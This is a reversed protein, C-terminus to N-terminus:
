GFEWKVNMFHENNQWGALLEEAADQSLDEYFKVLRTVEGRAPPPESPRAKRSLIYISAFAEKGIQAARCAIALGEANREFLLRRMMTLRIGTKESFLAEFLAIEGRRLTAVMLDPTIAEQRALHEALEAAKRKEPPKASAKKTVAAFSADLAAQFDDSNPFRTKIDQRLADSVWEYMRRALEPGLDARTLLPHQYCDVRRSEEVLYELTTRKILAGKNELLTKIVDPQQTAVLADSLGESIEERMAITLQHELTRHRVIEILEPDQLVKSRLLIPYAVEIADNGLTLVVDHPADLRTALQEALARRVTTEVEKVLNRLIEDMLFRERDTLAKGERFFLDRITALLTERGHASRDRALEFLRRTEAEALVGMM